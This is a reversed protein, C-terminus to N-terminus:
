YLAVIPTAATGAQTIKTVCIPLLQNAAIPITVGTAGTVGEPLGSFDVVVNGGTPGCLLGRTRKHGNSPTWFGATYTVVEGDYAPAVMTEPHSNTPNGM